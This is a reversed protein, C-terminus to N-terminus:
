LIDGKSRLARLENATIGLSALVEDTHEGHRPARRIEGYGAGNIQAPYGVYTFDGRQQDSIEVFIGRAHLHPDSVLDDINHAPGLPLKLRAALEMWEALSRKAIIGQIEDRLYPKDEGFDIELNPRMTSILDERGVARCFGEWFKLEIFGVLLLKEDRTAYIQYRTSGEPWKAEYSEQLQPLSKFDTIRDYNLKYVVGQWSAAIVADAASVDIYAGGGGRAQRVMAAMAAMAAAQAGLLSASGSEETGGMYQVRHRRHVKGDNGLTAPMGGALATMQYGHTPIPAYPGVAGYGTCQVYVIGPRVQKQVAYGLGMADCVGARLGDVFVDATKLLEFFIERGRDTRVNLAVSKKNKNVQLHAPSERPHIQGLIDRIYDGQKCDEIKIVEAGLDAFIMGVQGGNLLLASELVRVGDLLKFM